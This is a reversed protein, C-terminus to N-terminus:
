KAVTLSDGIKASAKSITDKTGHVAFMILKDETKDTVKCLTCSNCTIDMKGEVSHRAPCLIGREGNPLTINKPTDQPVVLTASWGMSRATMVEMMNNCSARFWKKLPAAEPNKWDHTYGINILGEEEIVKCEEMTHSVDDVVDGAIRHRVIKCDKHRESLAEKITRIKIRGDKIKDGLIRLYFLGWAYCGGEKFECSDPCTELPSYSAVVKGTKVDSSRSVWHVMRKM